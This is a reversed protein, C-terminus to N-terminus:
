ESLDAIRVEFMTTTLTSKSMSSSFSLLLNVGKAIHACTIDNLTITTRYFIAVAQLVDASNKFRALARIIFWSYHIYAELHLLFSSFSDIHKGIASIAILEKNM